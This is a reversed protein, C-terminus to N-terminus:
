IVSKALRAVKAFQHPPNKDQFPNRPHAAHFIGRESERLREVIGRKPM